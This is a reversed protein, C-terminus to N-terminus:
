CPPVSVDAGDACVAEPGRGRHAQAFARFVEPEFCSAKLTFGWSAAAFRVDLEPDPMLIMRSVPAACAAESSCCLPDVDLETILAEAAAIEADCDDCNYSIVVAGHEMSHVAFGREIPTSYTRFAAWTGYHTGSSPPNSGYKIPTCNAVHEPEALTYEREVAGCASGAVPQTALVNTPGSEVPEESCALAAWAPLLALVLQRTSWRVREARGASRFKWSSRRDFPKM